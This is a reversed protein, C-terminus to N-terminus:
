SHFFICFFNSSIIQQPFPTNIDIEV